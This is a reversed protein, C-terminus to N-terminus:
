NKNWLDPPLMFYLVASFIPLAISKPCVYCSVFMGLM